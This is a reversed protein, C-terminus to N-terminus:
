QRSRNLDVVRGIHRRVSLWTLHQLTRCSQRKGFFHRRLHNQTRRQRTRRSSRTITKDNKDISYRSQRILDRRPQGNGTIQRLDSRAGAQHNATQRVLKLQIRRKEHDPHVLNFNTQIGRRRSPGSRRCRNIKPDVRRHRRVQHIAARFPLAKPGRRRTRRRKSISDDDSARGTRQTVRQNDEGITIKRHSVLRGIRIRHHGSGRIGIPHLRHQNLAPDFSHEIADIREILALGVEIVIRDTGVHADQGLGTFPPFTVHRQVQISNFIEPQNLNVFGHQVPHLLLTKLGPHRSIRHIARQQQHRPIEIIEVHRQAIFRSIIRLVRGDQEISRQPRNVRM